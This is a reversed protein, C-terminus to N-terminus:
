PRTAAIDISYGTDEKLWVRVEYSGDRYVYFPATVPSRGWTPSAWGSAGQARAPDVRYCTFTPGTGRSCLRTEMGGYRTVSPEGVLNRLQGTQGNYIEAFVTECGGSRCANWPSWAAARRQVGTGSAACYRRAMEGAAFGSGSQAATSIHQAATALGWSSGGGASDFQWMGVGPHWFARRYSTSPNSFAYLAA